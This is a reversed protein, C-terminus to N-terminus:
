NENSGGQELEDEKPEAVIAGDGGGDDRSKGIFDSLRTDSCRANYTASDDRRDDFRGRSMNNRSVDGAATGDGANFHPRSSSMLVPRASRRKGPSVPSGSGRSSSRRMSAPYVAAAKALPPPSEVKRTESEMEGRRKEASKKEGREDDVQDLRMPQNETASKQPDLEDSAYGLSNGKSM